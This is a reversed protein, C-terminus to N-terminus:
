SSRWSAGNVATEQVQVLIREVNNGQVQETMYEGIWRALNETTPDEPVPKLGPLRVFEVGHPHYPEKSPALPQAWPDDQNLLIHHDFNNDLYSRYAKKLDGFDISCVLGNADVPGYLTLTAWFSHGHIAQCKGPTTYLRHAAEFNHKVSISQVM